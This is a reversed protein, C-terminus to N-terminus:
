SLYVQLFLHFFLLNKQELLAVQLCLGLKLIKLYFLLHLLKLYFVFKQFITPSTTRLSNLTGLFYHPGTVYQSRGVGSGDKIILISELFPEDVDAYGCCGAAGYIPIGGEKQLEEETMTERISLQKQPVTLSFPIGNNMIIQRYFLDIAVARSLGIQSLIKEAQEKINEQIRVNVSATKM